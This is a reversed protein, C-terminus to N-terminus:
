RTTVVATYVDFAFLGNPNDKTSNSDDAWAPILKHNFFALGTSDGYDTDDAGNAWGQFSGAKSIHLNAQFSRGHDISVAAYEMAGKNDSSDRCDLWSVGVQGTKDDVALAPVFQSNTTNDDNVTIPKTWTNGLNTSYRLFIDTDYPVDPNEDVYVLYLRGSAAGGSRDFAVKPEADITRDPQAPIYHTDGVATTTALIDAGFDRATGAGDADTCVFITAPGSTNIPAEWTVAVQGKPGVAVSSDGGPEGSVTNPKSFGSLRGLGTSTAYVIKVFGDNSDTYCIWVMQHTTAPM